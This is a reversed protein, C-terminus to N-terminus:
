APARSPSSCTRPRTRPLKSTPSAPSPTPWPTSPPPGTSSATSPRSTASSPPSAPHSPALHCGGDVAVALRNGRRVSGVTQQRLDVVRGAERRAVAMGTEAIGVLQRIVGASLGIPCGTRRIGLKVQDLLAGAIAEQRDAAVGRRGATQGADCCTN